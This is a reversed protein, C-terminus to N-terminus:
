KKLYMMGLTGPGCHCSITCGAHSEVVNTFSGCQFVTERVAELVEQPQEVTYIVFLTDTDLDERGELRDKIYNTLCRTYSGRYKKAVTLRGDHLHICPKLNLMNAGLAALSSCRGGKVLFTLQDLVFSGEIKPVYASVAEVLADMSDATKALQCAKLAILGQGASLAKSDICRVNEYDEAAILANQHSSSFGSGLNVLLVGDYEASYKKFYEEYEGVSVASTSCLNGGAAAHEFIDAATIDLGDKYDKGDKVVTLPVLTIDNAQLIEQPLDCTSDSLIKIRM